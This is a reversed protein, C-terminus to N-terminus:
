FPKTTMLFIALALLGVDIWSLRRYRDIQARLEPEAAGEAGLQKLKNGAPVIVGLGLAFIGVLLVLGALTWGDRTWDWPGEFVLAIGAVLTVLAAPIFLFKALDDDYEGFAVVLGSDGGRAALEVLALSLLAAGFWAAAALVHVFLLGEYLSM